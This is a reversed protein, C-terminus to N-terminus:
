RPLATPIDPPSSNAAKAAKEDKLRQERDWDNQADKLVYNKAGEIDDFTGTGVEELKGDPREIYIHDDDAPQGAIVPRAAYRIGAVISISWAVVQVREVFLDDEM